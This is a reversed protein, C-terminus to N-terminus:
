QFKVDAVESQHMLWKGGVKKLTHVADITNNKFDPGTVKTTTITTRVKAEDGKVSLVEFKDLSSKLDYMEFLKGMASKTPDYVPSKPDLTALYSAVDEKNQAEIQVDMVSRLQAEVSGDTKAAITSTPEKKSQCGISFGALLLSLASLTILIRKSM